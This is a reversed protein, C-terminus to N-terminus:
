CHTGTSWFPNLVYKCWFEAEVGRWDARKKNEACRATFLWTSPLQLFFVTGCTVNFFCDAVLFLIVLPYAIPLLFKPITDADYARKVSCMALYFVWTFLTNAALFQVPNHVAWMLLSLIRSWMADITPLMSLISLVDSLSFNM